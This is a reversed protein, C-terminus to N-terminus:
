GAARAPASRSLVVLSAVTAVASGGIQLLAVAFYGIAAPDALRAEVIPSRIASVLYLASVLVVLGVLWRNGALMLGAAALPIVTFVLGIPAFREDVTMALRPGTAAAILGAITAIEWSTRGPQEIRPQEIM